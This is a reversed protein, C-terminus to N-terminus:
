TEERVEKNVCYKNKLKWLRVNGIYIDIFYILFVRGNCKKDAM